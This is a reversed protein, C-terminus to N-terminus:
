ASAPLPSSDSGRLAYHSPRVACGVALRPAGPSGEGFFQLQRERFCKLVTVGMAWRATGRRGAGRGKPQAAIDGLAAAMVASSSIAKIAKAKTVETVGPGFLIISSALPTFKPRRRLRGCINPM